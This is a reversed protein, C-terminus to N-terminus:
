GREVVFGITKATSGGFSLTNLSVPKAADPLLRAGPGCDRAAFGDLDGLTDSQYGSLIWVKATRDM